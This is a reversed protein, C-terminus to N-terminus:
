QRDVAIVHNDMKAPMTIRIVVWLLSSGLVRFGLSRVRPGLSLTPAKITLIPNPHMYLISYM